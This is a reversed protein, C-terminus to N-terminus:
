LVVQYLLRLQKKLRSRPKFCWKIKGTDIAVREEAVGEPEEVEVLFQLCYAELLQYESQPLQSLQYSELCKEKMFNM